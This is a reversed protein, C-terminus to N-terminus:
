GVVELYFPLRQVKRRSLKDRALYSLQLSKLNFLSILFFFVVCKLKETPFREFYLTWITAELSSIM